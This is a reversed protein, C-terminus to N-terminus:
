DFIKFIKALTGPPPPETFGRASEDLLEIPELVPPEYPVKRLTKDLNM